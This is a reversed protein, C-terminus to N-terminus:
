FLLRQLYGLHPRDLQSQLFSIIQPSVEIPPQYGNSIGLPPTLGVTLPVLVYYRPLLTTGQSISLICIRTPVVIALCGLNVLM